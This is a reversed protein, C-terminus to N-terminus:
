LQRFSAWAVRPLRSPGAPRRGTWRISAPQADPAICRRRLWETRSSGDYGSRSTSARRSALSSSQRAKRSSSLVAAGSGFLGSVEDSVASFMEVPPVGHAVLTAVRRLAAQENVLRGLAQRSEANAIATAVLETFDAIRAEADDAFPQDATSSAFACGWM